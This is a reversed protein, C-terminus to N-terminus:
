AARAPDVRLQGASVRWAYLHRQQYRRDPEERRRHHDAGYFRVPQRNRQDDRYGGRRGRRGAISWPVDLLDADVRPHRCHRDPSVHHGVGRSARVGRESDARHRWDARPDGRAPAARRNEEALGSLGFRGATHGVLWGSVVGGLMLSVPMAILFGSMVCSQRHAPFWYNLYLSTASRGHYRAADPARRPKAATRPHRSAERPGNRTSGQSQRIAVKNRSAGNVGPRRSAPCRHAFRSCVAPM